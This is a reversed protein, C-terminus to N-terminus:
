IEYGKYITGGSEIEVEVLETSNMNILEIVLNGSTDIYVYDTTNTQGGATIKPNDRLYKEGPIKDQLKINFIDFYSRDPIQRSILSAPDFQKKISSLNSIIDYNANTGEITDHREFKVLENAGLNEFLLNTVLEIGVNSDDAYNIVDKTPIKVISDPTSTTSTTQSTSNQTSVTASFKMALDPLWPAKGATGSYGSQGYLTTNFKKDLSTLEDKSLGGRAADKIEKLAAKQQTPPLLKAQKELYTQRAQTQKATPKNAM